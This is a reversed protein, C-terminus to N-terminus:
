IKVKKPENDLQYSIGIGLVSKFQTRPGEGGNADKIKIDDDYILNWQASSTFLSNVKFTFMLEANVDINQPNNTYNSFLELKSKMEINKMIKKQFNLKIFAGYEIRSHEFQKVGFAGISSLSDDKVFTAKSAMPSGFISFKDDKIYDTGLAFNLYGPSMFRSVYNIDTPKAYGKIFQTKFGQIFSVFFRKSFKVGYSSSLDIKDDTKQIPFNQDEDFYMIGGLAINIDNKWNLQGQSYNANAMMGGILSINNKGGANWNVFSTQTGNLTFQSKLQWNRPISDELVLHESCNAHCCWQFLFLFAFSTTFKGAM